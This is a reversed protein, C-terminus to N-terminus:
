FFPMMMLKSTYIRFNYEMGYDTLANGNTDTDVLLLNYSLYNLNYLSITIQNESPRTIMKPPFQLNSFHIQIEKLM